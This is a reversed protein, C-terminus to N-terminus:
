NRFWNIMGDYFIDGHNIQGYEKSEEFYYKDRELDEIEETSIIEKTINTKRNKLEDWWKDSTMYSLDPSIRIEGVEYGLSITAPLGYYWIKRGEEEKQNFFNFPHEIIDGIKKVASALARELNRSYFKYILKDNAYIKCIGGGNISWEDWKYKSNNHQKYEVGWCVRNVGKDIYPILERQHANETGYETYDLWWTDPEGNLKGLNHEYGDISYIPYTKDYIQISFIKTINDVGFKIKAQELTLREM